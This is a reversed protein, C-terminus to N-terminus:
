CVRGLLFRLRNISISDLVSYRHRSVDPLPPPTPLRDEEDESQNSSTSLQHPQHQTMEQKKLANTILAMAKEKDM